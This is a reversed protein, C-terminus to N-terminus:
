GAAKESIVVPPSLRLGEPGARRSRAARASAASGPALPAASWRRAAARAIASAHRM